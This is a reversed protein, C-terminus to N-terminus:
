WRLQRIKNICFCYKWQIIKKGIINKAAISIPRITWTSEWNSIHRCFNHVRFRKHVTLLLDSYILQRYPFGLSELWWSIRAAAVMSLLTNSAVPSLGVLLICQGVSIRVLQLMPFCIFYKITFWTSPRWYTEDMRNRHMYKRIIYHCLKVVRKVAVSKANQM